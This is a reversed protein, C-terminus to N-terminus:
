QSGMGMRLLRRMQRRLAVLQELRVDRLLTVLQPGQAGDEVLLLSLVCIVGMGQLCETILVDKVTTCPFFQASRACSGMGALTTEVVVGNYEVCLVRICRPWASWAMWLAALLATCGLGWHRSWMLGAAVTSVIGLVASGVNGMRAADLASVSGPGTQVAVSHVMSGQRQQKVGQLQQKM